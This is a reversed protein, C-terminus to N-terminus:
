TEHKVEENTRVTKGSVDEVIRWANSWNQHNRFALFIDEDAAEVTPYLTASRSVKGDRLLWEVVYNPPERQLMQDCTMTGDHGLTRNHPYMIGHQRKLSAELQNRFAPWNTDRGDRLAIQMASRCLRNADKLVEAAYDIM